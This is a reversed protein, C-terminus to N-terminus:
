GLIGVALPLVLCFTAVAAMLPAASQPSSGGKNAEIAAEQAIKEAERRLHDVTRQIREDQRMQDAEASDLASLMAEIHDKKTQGDERLEHLWMWLDAVQEPRCFTIHSGRRDMMDHVQRGQWGRTIVQILRPPQGPEFSDWAVAFCRNGDDFIAQRSGQEFRINKKNFNGLVDRVRRSLRTEEDSTLNERRMCEAYIQSQM